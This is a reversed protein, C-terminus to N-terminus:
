APAQSSWPVLWTRDALQDAVQAIHHQELTARRHLVPDRTQTGTLSANIVWGYPEIGARRLDEQLQAAEHVPTTEPLTVILVRALAPKQLKM